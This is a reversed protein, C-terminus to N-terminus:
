SLRLVSTWWEKPVMQSCHWKTPAMEGESGGHDSAGDQELVLVDGRDVWKKVEVELIQEVYAKMTIAGNTNSPITYWIIKPTKCNWGVASWGHVRHHLKDPPSDRHQVNDFRYREAHFEDSYRIDESVGLNSDRVLCIKAAKFTSRTHKTLHAWERVTSVQTWSGLPIDPSTEINGRSALGGPSASIAIQEVPLVM